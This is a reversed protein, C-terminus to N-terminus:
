VSASESTESQDEPAEQPAAEDKGESSQVSGEPPPVQTDTEDTPVVEGQSPVPGQVEEPGQNEQPETQNSEPDM